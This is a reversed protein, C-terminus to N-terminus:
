SVTPWCWPWNQNFVMFRVTLEFIVVQAIVSQGM